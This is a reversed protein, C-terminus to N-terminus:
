TKGALEILHRAEDIEGTPTRVILGAAVGIAEEPIADRRVRRQGIGRQIFM